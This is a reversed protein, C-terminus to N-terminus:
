CQQISALTPCQCFFTFFLKLNELLFTQPSDEPYEIWIQDPILLNQSFSPLYIDHPLYHFPFPLPYPVNCPFLFLMQCPLGKSPLHITFSLSSSTSSPALSLTKPPLPVSTQGPPLHLGLCSLPFFVHVSYSVELSMAFLCTLLPKNTQKNAAVRSVPAL